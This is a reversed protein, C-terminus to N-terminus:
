RACTSSPSSTSTAPPPSSSTPARRPTRWPSSRTARWRRRCRASRISRRRGDRPLRGQAALRGLGQRRRRLGRGDRGQRGDDRRHRPPHRRGAVRAAATSTTSSRSPSALRQRQDGPVAAHGEEADRLAPARRHHDGRHRRPHEQRARAYWGPKDKSGSSSRRRVPSGRGRQGATDLFGTDGKEARLGLHVLLTADGGDDLIMNPTGGDAWEFIRHTYDWYDKLSEGKVAFVPTGGAAIAAAAHDQTSYINCSAWRVDAGLAKLTEILVATQITMHLSGAIRAGQLPQEAGFEERTAMLGPM